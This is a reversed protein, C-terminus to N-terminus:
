DAAWRVSMRRKSEPVSRQQPLTCLCAVAIMRKHPDEIALL